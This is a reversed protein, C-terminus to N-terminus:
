EVAERTDSPRLAREVAELVREFPTRKSLMPWGGVAGHGADSEAPSIMSSLFLIPVHRAAERERLAAALAGGDLGPMDIDSIILDPKLEDFRALVDRAKTVATVEYRGLALLRSLLIDLVVEDDDVIIIRPRNPAETM